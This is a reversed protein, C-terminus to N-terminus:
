LLHCSYCRGFKMSIISKTDRSLACTGTSISASTLASVTLMKGVGSQLLLGLCPSVSTFQQQLNIYATEAIYAINFITHRMTSQASTSSSSSSLDNTTMSLGGRALRSGHPSCARSSQLLVVVDSGPRRLVNVQAEAYGVGKTSKCRAIDRTADAWELLGAVTRWQAQRRFRGRSGAARGRQWDQKYWAAM